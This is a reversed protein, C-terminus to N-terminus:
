IFSFYISAQPNFRLSKILNLPSHSIDPLTREERQHERQESETGKVDTPPSAKNAQKYCYTHAKLMYAYYKHCSSGSLHEAMENCDLSVLGVCM